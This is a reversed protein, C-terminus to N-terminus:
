STLEGIEFEALQSEPGEAGGHQGQFADTADTGCIQEIRDPGGPHADIWDTLDYVTGDIAAWCSDPGDNEQVEDLTLTQDAEDQEHEASEEQQTQEEAQADDDDGESTADDTGCAALVLLSGVALPTILIKHLATTEHPLTM